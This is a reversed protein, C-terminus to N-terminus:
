ISVNDFKNKAFNNQSLPLLVNELLSSAGFRFNSSNVWACGMIKNALEIYQIAEAITKIGGSAKFGCKKGSTKITNLITEAAHITANILSKGTSTKIFDAGAAISIESAIQILEPTKLEGSEIIVKLVKNKCLNKVKSIMNYGLESDGNKLSHYPFVIDIEQAGRKIALETEYLAKDMDPLGDPFNVVTAIKINQKIEAFVKQALPIYHSYICIAAVNGYHTNAKHCLNIISQDTDNANLSTLDILSLIQAAYENTNNM